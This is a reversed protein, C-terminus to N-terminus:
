IGSGKPPTFHIKDYPDKLTNLYVNNYLCGWLQSLWDTVPEYYIYLLMTDNYRCDMMNLLLNLLHWVDFLKKIHKNFLM